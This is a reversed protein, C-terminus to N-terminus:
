TAMSPAKELEDRLGNYAKTIATYMSESEVGRMNETLKM